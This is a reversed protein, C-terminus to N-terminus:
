RKSKSLKDVIAEIAQLKEELAPIENAVSKAPTTEM